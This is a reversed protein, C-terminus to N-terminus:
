RYADLYRIRKITAAIICETRDDPDVSRGCSLDRKAIWAREDARLEAQRKAPLRAMAAKYSRNLRADQSRLERANCEAAPIATTNHTEGYTICAQYAPSFGETVDQAAWGATGTSLAGLAATIVIWRM